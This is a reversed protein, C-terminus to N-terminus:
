AGAKCQQIFAEGRGLVFGGFEGQHFIDQHRTDPVIAGPGQRAEGGPLPLDLRGQHRRLRHADVRRRVEPAGLGQHELTVDAVAPDIGNSSGMGLGHGLDFAEVRPQLAGDDFEVRRLGAGEHLFAPVIDGVTLLPQVLDDQPEGRQRGFAPAGRALVGGNFPLYGDFLLQDGLAFGEDRHRWGGPHDPFFTALNAFGDHRPVHQHLHDVALRPKDFYGQGLPM